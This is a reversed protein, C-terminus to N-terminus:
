GSITAPNPEGGTWRQVAAELRDPDIPKTIVDDMGALLCRERDAPLANATMAVIPVRPRDTRARIRRTAELGDMVPMQMDMFVLDFPEAQLQRLAQAGDEATHVEVGAFSLMEAAILLNVENDDVVLVRAQRAGHAGLGTVAVGQPALVALQGHDGREVQGVPQGPLGLAGPKLASASALGFRASFWFTSGEGLRSDVGVQGGMMDALRAAIALGLGTGGYQRSTSPDAQHFSQFLRQRHEESLGIGTDRVACRLVVDREGRELVEVRVRIEGRETFKVANNGYNILIQGLRLPDGVLADPVDPSLDIDLALGKATAKDVILNSFNELVAALSFEIHELSLKDAEIKSFDLIDNIIGLLHQASQQIRELYGRGREDTAHRLALHTLGLVANMPTRIEHSMNALFTSKAQSAREAEDKAIKLEEVLRLRESVDRLILTFYTQGDQVWESINMEVQLAQGNAHLAITQQPSTGPPAGADQVPGHTRQRARDITAAAEPVFADLAQGLAAAAPLGFIREAAVNWTVIRHQPDTSIVADPISAVMKDLKDIEQRIQARLALRELHTALRQRTAGVEFPKEIFDIAGENFARDRHSRENYASCYILACQPQLDRIRQGVEFGSMDPLNLDLIALQFDARAVIRLAQAGSKAFSAEVAAGSLLEGMLRLNDALDDLVLVRIPDGGLRASGLDM